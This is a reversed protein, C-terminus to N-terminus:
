NPSCCWPASAAPPRPRGTCSMWTLPDGAGVANHRLQWQEAVWWWSIQRAALRFVAVIAWFVSLSLYRPIRVSHFGAAYAWRGGTHVVTAKLNAWGRLSAPVIPRRDEDKAVVDVFVPDRAPAEPEPDLAIEFSTDFREPGHEAYTTV